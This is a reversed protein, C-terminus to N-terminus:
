SIKGCITCKYFDERKHLDTFSFVNDHVCNNQIVEIFFKRANKVADYEKTLEKLTEKGNDLWKENQELKEAIAEEAEEIGAVHTMATKLDSIVKQVEKLSEKKKEVRSTHHDILADYDIVLKKFEKM